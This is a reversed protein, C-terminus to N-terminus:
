ALSAVIRESEMGWSISPRSRIQVITDSMEDSRSSRCTQLRCTHVRVGGCPRAVRSPARGRHRLPFFFPAPPIPRCPKAACSSSRMCTQQRDRLGLAGGDDLSLYTTLKTTLPLSLLKVTSCIQVNPCWRLCFAAPSPQSSAPVVFLNSLRQRPGAM